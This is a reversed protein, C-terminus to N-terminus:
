WNWHTDNRQTFEEGGYDHWNIFSKGEEMHRTRIGIRKGITSSPAENVDTKPNNRWIQAM